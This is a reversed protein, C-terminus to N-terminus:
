SRGWVCGLHYTTFWSYLQGVLILLLLHGSYISDTQVYDLICTRQNLQFTLICVILTNRHKVMLFICWWEMWRTMHNTDHWTRLSRQHCSYDICNLHSQSTDLNKHAVLTKGRGTKLKYRSFECTRCETLEVNELYCMMYFNPCM